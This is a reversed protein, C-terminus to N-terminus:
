STIPDQLYGIFLPVNQESVLVYLFPRDLTFTIEDIPMATKEVLVSTYAAAEVGEEDLSIFTGQLIESMSLSGDKTTSSFQATDPSFARIIGMSRLSEKLSLEQKITFPPLMIHVNTHQVENQFRTLWTDDSLIDKIEYGEKPLYFYIAAGHTFSLSTAQYIKTEIYPHAEFQQSMFDLLIADDNATHFIQKTTRQKDFPQKWSDKFCLANLYLMKTTENIPLEPSLMGNSVEEIWKGALRGVDDHHFDKQFFEPKLHRDLTEKLNNGLMVDQDYWISNATQFVESDNLQKMINSLDTLLAEEDRYALANMLEKKTEQTADANCLSLAIYASFPSYLLNENESFLHLFSNSSFTQLATRSSEKIPKTVEAVANSCACLTCCLSLVLCCWRKM